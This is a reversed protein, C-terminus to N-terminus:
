EQTQTIELVKSKDYNKGSLAVGNQNFTYVRVNVYYEVIVLFKVPEIRLFVAIDKYIDYEEKINYITISKPRKKKEKQVFDILKDVFKLSEM